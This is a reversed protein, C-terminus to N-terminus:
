QKLIVKERSDIFMWSQLLGRKIERYGELLMTDELTLSTTDIVKPEIDKLIQGLENICLHLRTGMQLTLPMASHHVSGLYSTQNSVQFLQEIAIRLRTTVSSPDILM